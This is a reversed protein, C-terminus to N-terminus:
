DTLSMRIGIKEVGMLAEDKMTQVIRITYNRKKDFVVRKKYSLTTQYISGFGSGLWTGENDAIKYQKEVWNMDSVSLDDQVCLWLNLYPYFTNNMLEIDIDIPMNTYISASDLVFNLTDKKSWNANDLDHFQFYVERQQCALSALGIGLC